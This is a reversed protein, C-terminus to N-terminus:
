FSYDLDYVDALLCLANWECLLEEVVKQFLYIAGRGDRM